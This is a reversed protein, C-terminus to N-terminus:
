KQDNDQRDGKASPLIAEESKSLRLKSLSEVTGRVMEQVLQSSRSTDDFTLGGRLYMASFTHSIQLVTHVFGIFVANARALDEVSNGIDKLPGAYVIALMSSLGAVMSVGAGWMSTATERDLSFQYVSWITLGLGVLFTCVSMALRAIYGWYVFRVTGIWNETTLANLESIPKQFHNELNEQLKELIPELSSSGGVEIRLRQLDSETTPNTKAFKNIYNGAEIVSGGANAILLAAIVSVARDSANLARKVLIDGLPDRISKESGGIAGMVEPGNVDSRYINHQEILDLIASAKKEWDPITALCRAAAARTIARTEQILLESLGKLSQEDKIDGLLDICRLRNKEDTEASFRELLFAVHSGTFRIMSTLCARRVEADSDTAALDQLQKLVRVALEPSLKPALGGLEKGIRAKLAKDKIGLRAALREAVVVDGITIMAEIADHRLGRDEEKALIDDLTPIVEAASFQGLSLVAARRIFLKSKQDAAIQIIDPIAERIKHRGVAVCATRRVNENTEERLLSRVRSIIEPSIEQINELARQRENASSSYLGTQQEVLDPFDNTTTM